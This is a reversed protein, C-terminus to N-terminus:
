QVEGMTGFPVLVLSPFPQLLLQALFKIQMLLVVGKLLAFLDHINVDVVLVHVLDHPLVQLKLSLMTLLDSALLLVVFVLLLHLGFSFSLLEVTCLSLFGLLVQRLGACLGDDDVPIGVLSGALLHDVLVVIGLAVRAHTGVAM